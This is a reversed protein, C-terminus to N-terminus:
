PLVKQAQLFARLPTLAVAGNIFGGVSVCMDADDVVGDSNTDFLKRCEVTDQASVGVIKVVGVVRGQGDIVASGSSGGAVTLDLKLIGQDERAVYDRGWGAVNGSTFTIGEGGISPYGFVRVPDGLLPESALEAVQLVPWGRLDDGQPNVEVLALDHLSDVALINAPYWYFSESKPNDTYGVWLTDGKSCGDSPTPAAAVHENTLILGTRIVQTGTGWYCWELSGDPAKQGWLVEVAAMYLDENAVPALPVVGSGSRVVAWGIALVFALAIAAAPVRHIRVRGLSIIGDMDASVAARRPAVVQGRDLVLKKGSTRDPIKEGAPKRVPM